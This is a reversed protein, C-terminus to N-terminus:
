TFKCASRKYEAALRSVSISKVESLSVESRSVNGGQEKTANSFASSEFGASSKRDKGTHPEVRYHQKAKSFKRRIVELLLPLVCRVWGLLFYGNASLIAVFLLIKVQADTHFTGISETQYFLGAYITVSSVLISKLELRNFIPLNFPQIQLQFFLSILLVALVSLAQVMIVVTSLFVATCVLAVKRYLIVFEWFYWKPHYGKYLFSFKLQTMPDLLGRRLKYLIFLCAVPLGVIWVVIGPISVILITRVHETDWCKLSFDAVLWLEGPKIEKCSYLAFMAKTLSPHLIFLIMVLSAVVKHWINAVRSCLSIGCWVIIALFLLAAPILATGQLKTYYVSKTTIDQMMCDVSFLQEAAAGATDQGNLFLTVFDPWNINLSAAVVVMQLYNMFIKLHIAIESRPRTAGRIAVIIVLAGIVLVTLLILTSVLVNSTFSPCKGCKNKGERSYDKICVTCLNGSYGTACVGTLSVQLLSSPSGLCADQYPCQFVLNLTPDPRWYGADPAMTYNGYCTLHSPCSVCPEAPDLSFTGQPCVYCQMGDQSEGLVCHRFELDIAVTPIYTSPDSSYTKLSTDVGGTNILIRQTSGPKGTLVLNTFTFIGNAAIAQTAGAVAVDSGVVEIQASSSSDDSVVKGYHDILAFVLAEKYVHGSGVSEILGALPITENTLFDKIKNELSMPVLQIAFSAVDDGYIASNNTMENAKFEPYFDFWRVAGGRRAAGNNAFVNGIIRFDCGPVNECLCMIGGGIGTELLSFDNYNAQSASNSLFTNNQVTMLVSNSYIAGGNIAKNSIFTNNRYLSTLSFALFGTTYSYIAGGQKAVCDEFRSSTIVLSTCDMTSVGSGFSSYIREFTTEDVIVVSGVTTAGNGVLDAFYSRNITLNSEIIQLAGASILSTLFVAQTEEIVISSDRFEALSGSPATCNFFKSRFLTINCRVVCYLAGGSNAKGFSFSSDSIHVTTYVAAFLFAGTEGTQNTLSCNQITIRSMEMIFGPSQTDATNGKMTSNTVTCSSQVLVISGYNTATNYSVDSKSLLISSFIAYIVSGQTEAKNRTMSCGDCEFISEQDISVVGGIALCSNDRLECDRCLVNAHTSISAVGGKISASNGTATLNSLEVVAYDRALFAGGEKSNTYLYISSDDTWKAATLSVCPGENENFTNSSTLLIPTQAGAILVVSGGLNRVFVTNSISLYTASTLSGQHTSYIATGAEGTNGEFRNNDVLLVGSVFSVFLGSGGEKCINNLYINDRISSDGSLVVFGSLTLSCGSYQTKNDRFTNDSVTISAHSNSILMNGTEETIYIVGTRLSTNNQFICGTVTILTNQSALPTFMIGASTSIARNDTINCNRLTLGSAGSIRAVTAYIATNGQFVSDVVEIHRPTTPTIQMCMSQENYTNTNNIFVLSRLTLDLPTIIALLGYGM